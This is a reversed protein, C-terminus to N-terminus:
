SIKDISTGLFGFKDLISENCFVHENPRARAALTAVVLTAKRKHAVMSFKFNVHSFSSLFAIKLFVMVARSVTWEDM